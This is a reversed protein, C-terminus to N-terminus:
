DLYARNTAQRAVSRLMRRTIRTHGGSGIVMARYARGRAGPFSARTIASLKSGGGPLAVVRWELSYESFRHRGSLTLLEPARVETVRFGTRTSGAQELPGESHIPDVGILKGYLVFLGNTSAGFTRILAAWTQEPSAPVEVAHQDIFPLESTPLGSGM